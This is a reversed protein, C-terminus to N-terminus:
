KRYDYEDSGHVNIILNHNKFINYLNNEISKNTTFKSLSLEVVDNVTVISFLIRNTLNTGLVFDAKSIENQMEKPIDIKGLNSLVTTSSKDGFHSYIFNAIPHKIFLPIFRISKILHIANYTVKDIEEKNIKERSQKKVIKITNNFDTIDSKRICITNYMSYNRFTKTPYYKRLNIPVQIQIKGDESTSYSIVQFLFTLFLENITVDYQKSLYHIKNYDLDFHIIQCPKIISLKGDMELAKEEVLSGGKVKKYHKLFADELEEENIKERVNIAYKNYSVAKGLLRLYENVLTTLFVMGGSADALVHFFECSIRNNYYRVRFAQTNFHDINIKSCPIKDEERVDFHKSIGDLYNWFFGKHISTRFIPFRIITFTLALQLVEKIVPENLYYSLRYISMWNEHMSVPYIKSSNDLPYWANSKTYANEFNTLDLLKLIDSISKKKSFLLIYDEFDKIIRERDKRKIKIKNELVIFFDKLKKKDKDNFNSLFDKNKSM